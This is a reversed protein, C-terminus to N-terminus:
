QPAANECIFDVVKKFMFYERYDEKTANELLDDVNEVGNEAAFQQMEQDLEEDSLTLNEKEAVYLFLMGQRASAEAMQEAYTDADTGFYYSCFTDADVGYGAAQTALSRNILLYYKSVLEDPLDEFVAINELETLVASERAAQYDNEATYELYEGCYDLFADVTVYEGETLTEIVVDLMEERQAPYIFNVTVTFVVEKGAMDPNNPYPDPFTLNLDVTEGPMVGILGDEFGAIFSGSGINLQQGAATGGDFVVGDLKGSYDLNITDGLAVARDTIGGLEATVSNNYAQLALSAIQEQTVEEKPDVTITLGKYDGNLTLYDELNIIDKLYFYTDESDETSGDTSEQVTEQSTGTDETTGPTQKDAKDGCGTMIGATMVVALAIAFKKKM